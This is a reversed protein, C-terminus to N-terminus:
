CVCCARYACMPPPLLCVLVVGGFVNIKRADALRKEFHPSLVKPTGARLAQVDAARSIDKSKSNHQAHQTLSPKSPPTRAPASSLSPTVASRLDRLVHVLDKLQQKDLTAVDISSLQQRLRPSVARPKPNAISLSQVGVPRPPHTVM